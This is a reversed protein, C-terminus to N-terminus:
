AKTIHLQALYIRLVMVRWINRLQPYHNTTEEASWHFVFHLHKDDGSLAKQLLHLENREGDLALLLDRTVDQWRLRHRYVSAGINTFTIKPGRHWETQRRGDTRGGVM